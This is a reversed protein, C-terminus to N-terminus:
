SGEWRISTCVVAQLLLNVTCAKQMGDEFGKMLGRLAKSGNKVMKRSTHQCIDGFSDLCYGTDQMSVNECIGIELTM